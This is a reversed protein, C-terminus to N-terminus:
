PAVSIMLDNPDIASLDGTFAVHITRHTSLEWSWGYQGFQGAMKYEMIQPKSKLITSKEKETLPKVNKIVEERIRQLIDKSPSTKNVQAKSEEKKLRCNSITLIVSFIFLYLLLLLFLRNQKQM